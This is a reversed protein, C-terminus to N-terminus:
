DVNNETLKLLIENTRNIYDTPNELQGEIILIGEYLHNIINSILEPNKNSIYLKWLNKILPHSTNIELIKKSGVFNKDFQKFLKEMQSDFGDLSSVLTVPSDVLRKSPVVDEIKDALTEKFLKLISNIAEESLGDIQTNEIKINLDHKEISKIPKGNYNPIYPLTIYDSPDTLLLVEINNKLFYELKPNKLITDRNDGILYYIENQNEKMRLTYDKLSIKENKNTFTSEYRMLELLKERNEFDSNLGLKFLPGFNDYFQNYLAPKTSAWDELFSLIKNTLINKIKAQLPSAQTIERSVNLPLDVTDIVGRIFKLYDPLLDSLKDTIFVRGSYLHLGTNLDESLWLNLSRGPIFLLAELNINGEVKFHIFGLPPINDGTLYSYFEKAEDDTIEGKNKHWLASITNIQVGNLYIPFDVFNSYKKLISKVIEENAYKKHADKLKFYIKTGNDVKDIEKILFKDEGLSEWYLGKSEKAAYKTEISIKDTVMFVSYFGVGFQGILNADINKGDKKIENLFSLTGSSAITGIRNILDDETMGIGNDEISFIGNDTDLNIKISFQNPYIYDESNILSLFRLKNLADSANSVLERIFIDPNSYLSNIIINLLQKMEAKYEYERISTNDESM